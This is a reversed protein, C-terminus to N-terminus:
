KRMPPIRCCETPCLAQNRHYVTWSRLRVWTTNVFSVLAGGGDHVPTRTSMAFVTTGCLLTVVFLATGTAM